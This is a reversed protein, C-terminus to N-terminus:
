APDKRRPRRPAGDLAEALQAVRRRDVRGAIQLSSGVIFGDAVARFDALNARTIGSGVLLPCDPLSERLIDLDAPEAAAGTQAGTVILADAHARRRLDTAEQALDRAALPAAHKVRVDVLLGVHELGLERRRRLTEHARGVLLGQDCLMAGAHVNVRVFGAGTAGALALAAAADNRLVNVGLRLDEHRRRLETLVVAMAAVTEPPVREPWFPTDHFNEVMVARVGGAAMADLDALAAAIVGGLDGAYQPAGPLPDLHIMGILPPRFRDRFEDRTWM